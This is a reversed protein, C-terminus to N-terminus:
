FNFTSVGTPDIGTGDSYNELEYTPIFQPNLTPNYPDVVVDPDQPKGYAPGYPTNQWFPSDFNFELGNPTTYYDPIGDRDPDLADGGPIPYYPDIGRLGPLPEPKSEPQPESIDSPYTFPDGGSPQIFWQGPGIPYIVDGNPFRIGDNEGTPEGQAPDYGPPYQNDGSQEALRLSERLYQKFESM